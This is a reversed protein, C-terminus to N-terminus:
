PVTHPIINHFCYVIYNRSKTPGLGGENALGWVEEDAGQKGFGEYKKGRM